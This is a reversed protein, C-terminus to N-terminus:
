APSHVTWCGCETVQRDQSSAALLTAALLYNQIRMKMRTLPEARRATGRGAGAASSSTSPLPLTNAGAHLPLFLAQRTARLLRTPRARRASAASCRAAARPLDGSTASGCRSDRHHRRPGHDDRRSCGRSKPVRNDLLVSDKIGYHFVNPPAPSSGIIVMGDPDARVLGVQADRRGAHRRSRATSADIAQSDGMSRAFRHLEQRWM